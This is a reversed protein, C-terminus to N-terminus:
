VRERCSARGIERERRANFSCIFLHLCRWALCIWPQLTRMAESITKMKHILNKSFAISSTVLKTVRASETGLWSCPRPWGLDSNRIIIKYISVPEHYCLVPWRLLFPRLSRLTWYKMTMVRLIFFYRSRRVALGLPLLLNSKSCQQKMKCTLQTPLAFPIEAVKGEM